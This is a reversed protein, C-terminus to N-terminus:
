LDNSFLEENEYSKLNDAISKKCASEDWKDLM